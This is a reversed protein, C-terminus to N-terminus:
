LRWSGQLGWSGRLLWSGRFGWSGQLGWSGLAGLVGSVGLVWLLGGLVWLLGGLVTDKDETPDNWAGFGGGGIEGWSRIKEKVATVGPSGLVGLLGM